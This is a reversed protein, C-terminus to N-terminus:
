FSGYGENDSGEDSDEGSGKDSDLESLDSESEMVEQENDSNEVEYMYNMIDEMEGPGSAYANNIGDDSIETEKSLESKFDEPGTDPPESDVQHWPGNGLHGIVGGFYCIIMDRDVFSLVM